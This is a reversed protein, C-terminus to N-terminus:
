TGSKEPLTTTCVGIITLHTGIKKKKMKEKPSKRRNQNNKYQQKQQQQNNSSANRNQASDVTSFLFQSCPKQNLLNRRNYINQLPATKKRLNRSILAIKMTYHHNLMRFTNNNFSEILATTLHTKHQKISTIQSKSVEAKTRKQIIKPNTEQIYVPLVKKMNNNSRADNEKTSQQRLHHFIQTNLAIQRRFGSSVGRNQNSLDEKSYISQTKFHHQKKRSNEKILAIRM